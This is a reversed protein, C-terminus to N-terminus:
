HLTRNSDKIALAVLKENAEDNLESSLVDRAAEIAIEVVKRQIAAVAEQEERNIKENAQTVRADVARQLQERAEEELRKATLRASEIMAKAEADAEIQKKQYAALTAEAEKRLRVAEALEAEIRAARADLSKMMAKRVPKWALAVFMVFALSVFFAADFMM